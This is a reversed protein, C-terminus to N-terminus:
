PTLYEFVSSAIVYDFKKKLSLKKANQFFFKKKNLYRSAISVLNKSYDCGGYDKFRDKLLYLLAGSGCGVEFLSSRKKGSISNKNYKKRIKELFSCKYKEKELTVM